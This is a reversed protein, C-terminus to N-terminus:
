ACLIRRDFRRVVMMLLDASELVSSLILNDVFGSELVVFTVSVLALLLAWVDLRYTGDTRDDVDIGRLEVSASDMSDYGTYDGKDTHNNGM